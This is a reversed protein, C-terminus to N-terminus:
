QCNKAETFIENASKEGGKKLRNFNPGYIWIKSKDYIPVAYSSNVSVVKFQQSGAGQDWVWAGGSTGETFGLSGTNLGLLQPHLVDRAANHSIATLIQGNSNPYGYAKVPKEYPDAEVLKVKPATVSSALKLFAFDYNIRLYEDTQSAWESPLKICDQNGTDKKLLFDEAQPTGERRVFKEVQYRTTTGNQQVCHAATIIINDDVFVGSCYHPTSNITLYLKGSLSSVDQDQNAASIASSVVTERIPRLNSPKRQPTSAM